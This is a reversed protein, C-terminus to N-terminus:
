AASQPSDFSAVLPTPCDSRGFESKKCFWFTSWVSFEASALGYPSPEVTHLVAFRLFADRSVATVCIPMVRLFAKVSLAPPNPSQVSPISLAM